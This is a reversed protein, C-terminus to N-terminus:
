AGPVKLGTLSVEKEIEGNSKIGLQKFNIILIIYRKKKRRFKLSHLAM